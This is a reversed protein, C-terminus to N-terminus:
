FFINKTPHPSPFLSSSTVYFFLYLLGSSTEEVAILFFIGAFHWFGSFLVFVLFTQAIPIERGVFLLLRMAALWFFQPSTTKEALVNAGLFVVIPIVKQLSTILFFLSLSLDKQIIRVVWGQFPFFGIKVWLAVTGILSFAGADEGVVVSTLWMLSALRQILFFKVAKRWRITTPNDRVLLALVFFSFRELFVWLLLYSKQIFFAGASLAILFIGITGWVFTKQFM